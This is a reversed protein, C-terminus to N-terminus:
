SICVMVHASLWVEHSRELRTSEQAICLCYKHESANEQLYTIHEETTDQCKKCLFGVKIKIIVNLREGVQNLSREITKFVEHHIPVMDSSEHTVHVELFFIKDILTVYYADYDNMHFTILNQKANKKYLDWHEAHILQVALFCFFGRPFGNIKNTFEFQILLPESGNPLTKFCKDGPIVNSLDDSILLSPMFYKTVVEKLPAIILLHQLLQLFSKKPNAIRCKEFDKDINLENLMTENFMGKRLDEYEKTKDSTFSYLVIETLKEFLWQHNTIVLECMGEVDEFYLLVGHLHHFRLASKIFNGEGLNKKKALELVDTYTIFYSGESQCEKRIELDLLLWQIPVTYVDQEKICDYIYQRIRLVDTFKKSNTSSSTNQKKNDIPILYTYHENLDRKINELCANNNYNITKNLVEDIENIKSASIDQSHTGIFSISKYSVKNDPHKRDTLKYDDFREDPLLNVSAHSILTKILQLYTCEYNHKRFSNKGKKNGHKVEFKQDLGIKGGKIMKYVIFTIMASINVVPLMSIFQPQGGTDIFTFIDWPKDSPLKNTKSSILKSSIIDEAITHCQQNLTTVNELNANHVLLDDMKQSSPKTFNKPLYLMLHDIEDDINMIKFTVEDNDMIAQAKIVITAQHPKAVETSVHNPNFKKKMILNLFNTKGAGNAGCLLIKGYRVKIGYGDKRAKYMAELM